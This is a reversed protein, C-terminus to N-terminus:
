ENCKINKPDNLFVLVTLNKDDSSPSEFLSAKEVVNKCDQFQAQIIPIVKGRDATNRDKKEDTFSLNELVNNSKDLVLVDYHTYTSEFGGRSKIRTRKTTLLTKGKHEAIVFFGIDKKDIPFTKFLFEGYTAFNLAKYKIHMEKKNDPLMYGIRKKGPEIHISNDAVTIKTGDKKQIFQQAFGNVSVFFLILLLKKMNYTSFSTAAFSEQM